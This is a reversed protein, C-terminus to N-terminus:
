MIQILYNVSISYNLLISANSSENERCWGLPVSVSKLNCTIWCIFYNYCFKSLLLPSFLTFFLLRKISKLELSDKYYMSFWYALCCPIKDDFVGRRSLLPPSQRPASPSSDSAPTTSKRIKIGGGRRALNAESMQRPVGGTWSPLRTNIAEVECKNRSVIVDYSKKLTERYCMQSSLNFDEECSM